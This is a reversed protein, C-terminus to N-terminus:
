SMHSLHLDEERLDIILDVDCDQVIPGPYSRRDPTRQEIREHGCSFGVPCAQPERQSTSYCFLM